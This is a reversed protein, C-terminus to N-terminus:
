SESETPHIWHSMDNVIAYVPLALLLDLFVSPVIVHGISATWGLNYGNIYLIGFVILNTALSSFFTVIFLAILPNHWFRKSFYRSLGVVFLLSLVSAYWPVASAFSLLLAAFIAGYWVNKGSKQLGWSVLWLMILDVSGGILQLHRGIVMQIILLIILIPYYLLEAM